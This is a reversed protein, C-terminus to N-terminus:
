RTFPILVVDGAQKIGEPNVVPLREGTAPNYLGIGITYEEQNAGDPLTLSRHDEITQGAQWLWFPALGAIPYGDAQNLLEGGPGYLHVFVTLDEEVPQDIEWLLDISLVEEEFNKDVTTVLPQLRVADAFTFIAQQPDFSTRGVRGVAALQIQEPSWQTLYVPGGSKLREGLKEYDVHEGLMGYYYPQPQRINGFQIALAAQETDNHAYILEQINIYFPIIQVGHNGMAFHREQPSLWSPFNIVLLEEDPDSDKAIEVLQLVPEQALLYLANREKVFQVSGGLILLIILVASAFRLYPQREGIALIALFGGWMLVIGVGPPYLLRPSNVVYDFDVFVLAPLNLLFFWALSFFVLGGQKQHLLVAVIVVLIPISVLWIAAVDGWRTLEMVWLALPSIPYMLGQLFYTSILLLRDPTPLGFSYNQKPITLSRALFLLNLLLGILPGTLWPYPQRKQLWLVLEVTFLLGSGMLGYEIEFPALFLFLFALLLLHNSGRVRAQWYVATMALLLLNALPYFFNNIWPIAQYAFPFAGFLLAAIAGTWYRRKSTDIWSALLAILTINLANFAFNHYRLWIRDHQGLILYWAKLISKGLPRYDPAGKASFFPELVNHWSLWRIHTSDEQLFPLGLTNAYLIFSIWIALIVGAYIPWRKAAPKNLRSVLPRHFFQSLSRM